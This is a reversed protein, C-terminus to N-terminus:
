IEGPKDAANVWVSYQNRLESRELGHRVGRLGPPAAGFRASPHEIEHM